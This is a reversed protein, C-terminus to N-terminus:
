RAIVFYSAGVGDARASGTQVLVVHSGNASHFIKRGYAQAGNITPLALDQQPLLLAGTYRKYASPLDPPYPYATASSPMGPLALAEQAAASHSFGLMTRTIGSLQGGYRLTDTRFWNGYVTFLLKDDSSLYLPSAMQYDGHYPSDGSATVLGSAPDISFFSIDSPSLGESIFFAKNLGGALIGHQMGYFTGSGLITPQVLSAGTRGNFVAVRDTFFGGATTGILYVRGTNTVFADTQAGGSATTRIVSLAQLDVLSFSGQHLVVALKGDASLQLSTAPAPLPLAAIGGAFPDVLRLTSPSDSTIVMKDLWNSYKADLPTFGLPVSSRFQALTRVTVYAVSAAKGDSVRVALVYTGALDPTFSVGATNAALIAATSGVPRADVSWQYTLVDGDEDFSMAASATVAGGAIATVLNRDVVAVPAHTGVQVSITRDSFAGSPDAVRLRFVFVGEVDAVFKPNLASASSLAATSGAPKADIFWTPTLVDGDADVSADGRLTVETGQPVLVSPAFPLSQPTANTSIRAVPRRNNARVTTTYTSQAGRADTVTLVVVYDGLVDPAFTTTAGTAAGLVAQSGAPRSRLTWARTLPDADADSSGSGDLLVDYGVSASVTAQGADLVVPSVNAVLVATPARNAVDFAYTTQFAAGSPDSGLVRVVFRGLADATFRATKGVVALTAASGAPKTVITFSVSVADGDPDTASTADLVISAGLTAGQAPAQVPVPHFQVTTVVGATPAGNDVIITVQRSASAGKGDSVKLAYTFTGLMDPQWALERGAGSASVKSGAPKAVLTWEYTLPDHEPDTSTAGDLRVTGGVSARLQGAETRIDGAAILSATPANNTPTAEGGGAGGGGCATLLVSFWFLTVLALFRRLL